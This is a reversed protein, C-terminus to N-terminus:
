AGNSKTPACDQQTGTQSRQGRSKREARPDEALWSAPPTGNPKLNGLFEFRDANPCWWGKWIEDPTVFGDWYPNMFIYFGYPEASDEARLQREFFDRQWEMGRKALEDRAEAKLRAIVRGLSLRAGLRFLWHVHDPMVTFAFTETDSLEDSKQAARLIPDTILPDELGRKREGTCFSIFYRAGPYSWRGWHLEGTQRDKM